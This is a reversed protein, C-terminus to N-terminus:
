NSFVEISANTIADTEYYHTPWADGKKRSTHSSRPSTHLCPYTNQHTDRTSCCAAHSRMGQPIAETKIAHSVPKAVLPSHKGPAHGLAVKTNLIKDRAGPKDEGQSTGWTVAISRLGERCPVKCLGFYSFGVVCFTM